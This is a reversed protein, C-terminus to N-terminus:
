GEKLRAYSQTNPLPPGTPPTKHYYTSDSHQIALLLKRGRPSQPPTPFGDRALALARINKKETNLHGRSPNAVKGPQDSIVICPYKSEKARNISLSLYQATIIHPSWVGTSVRVREGPQDMRHYLIHNEYICM